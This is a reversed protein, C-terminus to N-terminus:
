GSRAGSTTIEVTEIIHEVVLADRRMRVEGAPDLFLDFM